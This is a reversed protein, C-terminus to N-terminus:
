YSSIFYMYRLLISAINWKQALDSTTVLCNARAVNGSDILIIM